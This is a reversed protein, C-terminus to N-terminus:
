IDTGCLVFNVNTDSSRVFVIDSEGIKLNLNSYVSNPSLEYNYQIYESAAITTGVGVRITAPFTTRNCAFLNANIRPNGSTPASYLVEPTYVQTPTLSSLLGSNTTVGVESGILNFSINLDNSKVILSQGDAFYITDTQYTEGKDLEKDYIVYNSSQLDNLGGTSIAVRVKTPFSNRNTIYVKGDIMTSSPSTYLLTNLTTTTPVVTALSGFSM